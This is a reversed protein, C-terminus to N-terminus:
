KNLSMGQSYMYFNNLAMGEITGQVRQGFTQGDGPVAQEIEWDPNCGNNLWDNMEDYSVMDPNIIPQGFEDVGDTNLRNYVEWIQPVEDVVHEVGQEDTQVICYHNAM